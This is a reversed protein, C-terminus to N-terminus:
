QIVLKKILKLKNESIVEVLYVGKSLHSVDVSTESSALIEVIKVIKGLVDYIVISELNETTNQISIQFSNSTPNPFLLINENTFEANSLAAVFETNFTNTVIPPNYDFFISATNPIIDGIAYGTEPKIKYTVFGHSAIPNLSTPPLNINYFFWTLQNNERKLDYNHSAGVMEISNPNLKNDLLNEIRIFEANATGTNEFTVTYYLYHNSTFNSFVIEPGRSEYVENPDYSGVVTQTLPYNNNEPYVDNSVPTISSSITLLDGLNVTPITPTQLNIVIMRMEQPALNIYNYTFGNSTSVTGTQSINNITELNNKTFIITGNPIIVQSNNYYNIYVNRSFGPRPNEASIYNSVDTYPAITNVPFYLYTTGSVTDVTINNYSTTCTYYPTFINQVSFNINYSNTTNLVPITITGDNSNSYFTSGNLTYNFTGLNFNNETTEKIGNGNSDIFANAVISYTCNAFYSCDFTCISSVESWSSFQSSDSYCYSRIYVDYCTNPSLNNIIFPMSDATIWGTTAGTPEPSNHPLTLVQYASYPFIDWSASISNPSVNSTTVSSPTEFTCPPPSCSVNATWGSNTVSDNSRFSFTLCGDPSSSTFPGPITTGWYGGAVGGPVNGAGNSSVIQQSAPSNGNFVYLADNNNEIDFSTFTVTVVEGANTPCITTINNSNNSYNSTTGGNDIYNGGCNPIGILTTASVASSWESVTSSTCLTRVYFAYCTEPQLGTIVFLNSTSAIWGTTTATPAPFGCPQALVEWSTGTGNETWNLTLSYSNVGTVVLNTPASCSNGCNNTNLTLTTISHCTTVPNIVVAYLIQQGPNIIPVYTNPLPNTQLEADTLTEYYFVPFGVAAGTIPADADQLNYIASGTIDCFSLTGPNVTPGPYATINMGSVAVELTSSNFFRVGITQTIPLENSYSSPNAIVNINNNADPVSPYFAVTYIAPNLGLSGIPDTATLNFTTYGDNDNDCVSYPTLMGPPQAYIATNVFSFLAFIVLLLQKKM